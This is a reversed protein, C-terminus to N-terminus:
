KRTLSKVKKLSRYSPELSSKHMANVKKNVIPVPNKYAEPVWEPKIICPQKM